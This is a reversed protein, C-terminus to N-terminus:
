KGPVVAEEEALDAVEALFAEAEAVVSAEVAEGAVAVM